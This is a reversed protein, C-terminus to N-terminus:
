DPMDVTSNNWDKVTEKWLNRYDEFKYKNKYYDLLPKIANLYKIHGSYITDKSQIENWENALKRYVILCFEKETIDVNTGNLDKNMLSYCTGKDKGGYFRKFYISVEEDDYNILETGM